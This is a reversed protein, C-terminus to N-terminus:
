YNRIGEIWLSHKVTRGTATACECEVEVRDGLNIDSVDVYVVENAAYSVGTSDPPYTLPASNIAVNALTVGDATVTPPGALEDGTALLGRPNGAPGFLFYFRDLEGPRLRLPKERSGDRM